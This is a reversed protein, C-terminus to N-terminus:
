GRSASSFDRSFLYRLGSSGNDARGSECYRRKIETELIAGLRSPLNTRAALSFLPQIRIKLKRQRANRRRHAEEGM